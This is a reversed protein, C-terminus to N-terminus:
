EVNQVQERIKELEAKAEVVRAAVEASQSKSGVTNIERGLEQVLFDLRRGVATGGRMLTEFQQIHSRLRVVEETVDQRDALIAVEQALRAADLGAGSDQLLRGVRERLRRSADDPVAAVLQEIEASLERLRGLRTGLDRALSRGESTRMELLAAVAQRAAEAASEALAEPDETADSQVMVGPQACVLELTVPHDIRLARALDTLERHVRRATDLDARVSPGGGEGELRVSVTIAGREVRQKVLAAVREEVAADLSAGRLKIDVFRHNVSKMEVVIRRRGFGAVGRGYGTM